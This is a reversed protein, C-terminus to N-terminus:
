KRKTHRATAEEVLARLREIEALSIEDREFLCRVLQACSGDFVRETLDRALGASAAERSATPRYYFKREDEHRRLWGKEELRRVHVQVTARKLPARRAANVATLIDTITLGSDSTWLAEMVEFESPSLKASPAPM